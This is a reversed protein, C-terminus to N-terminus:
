DNAAAPAPAGATVRAAKPEGVLARGGIALGIALTVFLGAVFAVFPLRHDIDFLMGAALSAVIFGVTGATGYLGQATSSRGVPTGRGVLTYLAPGSIAVGAGEVISIWIVISPNAIMPYILGAIGAALSGVIVFRLAGTRDIMRGAFPSIVVMGLGFVVFSFGILNLDAGLSKMWLSWIVEYTGSAFNVGLNIVMAAVLIRNRLSKAAVPAPTASDAAPEEVVGRAAPRTGVVLLVAALVLAVTCFIFPFSYGGMVASGVAGFAPGLLFGGMQATAYLGFAHGREGPDVADIIYGRAAPDYAATAVGALARLVIFAPAGGVVLPLPAVVATGILGAFMMLRRDERDALWGFAPEAVLRAAPWAAVILGLTGADIGQATIYLPLIPLLAGFGLWLGAEAVLIPLIPRMRAFWTM